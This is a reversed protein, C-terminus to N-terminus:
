IRNLSALCLATNQTASLVMILLWDCHMFIDRTPSYKKVTCGILTNTFMSCKWHKVTFM